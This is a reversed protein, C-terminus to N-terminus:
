EAAVSFAHSAFKAWPYLSRRWAQDHHKMTGALFVSVKWFDRACNNKLKCHKYMSNLFRQVSLYLWHNPHSTGCHLPCSDSCKGKASGSWSPDLPTLKGLQELLLSLTVQMGPLLLFYMASFEQRAGLLPCLFIVWNEFSALSLIQLKCHRYIHPVFHMSYHSRNLWLFIGSQSPFCLSFKCLNIYIALGCHTRDYYTSKM